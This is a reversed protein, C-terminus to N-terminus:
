GELNEKGSWSWNKYRERLEIKKFKGVTTKPITEVFEFVDPLQWKAFKKSLFDRLEEATIALGDKKVIVALPREIWRPHPVAIVAAEKVGPHGMLANELDVSSIWEGGSKVLDKTRDAIKIYGEADITAVDGTRFWGDATWRDNEEPMNYYSSAIWPGRVQLEGLTCGDWAAIIGSETVVRSEVFPFPLGQKARLAYQEDEPLHLLTSKVRSTCGAPTMETMGWSHRTILGFKDLGRIMAEPGPAGGCTVEVRPQLKWKKPNKELAELVAMWVTPVGASLTVQESEMLDLVSEADLYPGPLVLKMGVMAACYPIGWGNAHFFPVVPLHVDSQSASFADKLSIAFTHLVQARHSYLVGKPHGTTGSTYCMGAAENEDIEPYEWQGTAKGIFDEYSEYAAPLISNEFPFVFVRGVRVKDKVKEWTPLLCDDVILFRDGAHNIIQALDNPHLRLNLTHAVGGAVPVGLYAELHGSHNWMLTAVRDGRRMGATTLMEALARARRYVNGYNTRHLSRDPKRSVVEVTPFYKGARELITVLTLPFDMITGKLTM